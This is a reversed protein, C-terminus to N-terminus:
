LNVQLSWLSTQRKDMSFVSEAGDIGFDRNYVTKVLKCLNNRFYDALFTLVHNIGLSSIEMGGIRLISLPTVALM